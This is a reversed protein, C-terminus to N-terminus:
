KIEAGLKRDEGFQETRFKRTKYGADPLYLVGAYKSRLAGSQWLQSPGSDCWMQM